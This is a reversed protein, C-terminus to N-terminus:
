EKNKEFGGNISVACYGVRPCSRSRRGRLSVPFPIVTVCIGAAFESYWLTFFVGAPNM